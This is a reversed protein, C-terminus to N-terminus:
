YGLSMYLEPSMPDKGEKFEDRDDDNDNNTSVSNDDDDDDDEGADPMHSKHAKREKDKAM